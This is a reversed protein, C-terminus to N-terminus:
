KQNKCDLALLSRLALLEVMGMNQSPVFYASANFCLSQKASLPIRMPCLTRNAPMQLFNICLSADPMCRYVACNIRQSDAYVAKDSCLRINNLFGVCVGTNQDTLVKKEEVAKIDAAFLILGAAFVQLMALCFFALRATQSGSSKVVATARDDSDKSRILPQIMSKLTEM